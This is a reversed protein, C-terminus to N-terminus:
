LSGPAPLQDEPIGYAVAIERLKEQVKQVNASGMRLLQRQAGSLAELRPDAYTYTVVKEKLPVDEPLIPAKLLEVIARRFTEDFTSGPRGIEAYAEDILPKLRHIAEATGAANLSAVVDALGDYRHYSRPDAVLASRRKVVRFQGRPRAFAVLRKPSRGHAVMNVSSVFRRVLDKNALWTMLTPNSSVTAVVERVFGDSADLTVGEPIGMEEAQVPVPTPSPVVVAPTPSAVARGPGRKQILFVGAVILLLAVIGGIVWWM